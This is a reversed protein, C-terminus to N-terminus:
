ETNILNKMVLDSLWIAMHSMLGQEDILGNETHVNITVSRHLKLEAGKLSGSQALELEYDRPDMHRTARGIAKLLKQGDKSVAKRGKVRVTLQVEIKDEELSDGLKLTNFISEGFLGKIAQSVGENLEYKAVASSTRDTTAVASATVQSGITIGRINDRAARKAAVSAAPDDLTIMTGAPVLSTQETLLWSIYDELDRSSLVKTQVLIVHNDVVGFYAISELFERKTGDNARQAAIAEVSYATSGNALTVLPQTMGPTFAIFQGFFMASSSQFLNIGVRETSDVTRLRDQALRRLGLSKTLLEQLTETRGELHARKYWINKTTTAM